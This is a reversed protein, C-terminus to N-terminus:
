LGIALLAVGAVLYSGDPAVGLATGDLRGALATVALSVALGVALAALAPTAAAGTAFAVALLGAAVADVGLLIRRTGAVGFVVPLTAVGRAADAAADRVNPVEVDVFSRVLVYAFLLAVTGLGVSDVPVGAFALPAAVVAVAWALAVAASNLLFVDKLRPVSGAGLPALRDGLTPLWDTAYGIWVAGPVLALALAAPGAGAALAVALGYSVAAAVMLQDAYRLAFRARLPTSDADGEADAVHDAAYVSFAILGVAVPAASRQVGLAATVLAVEVAAVLATFPAGAAFAAVRRVAGTDPPTVRSRYQSTTGDATSPKTPENAM